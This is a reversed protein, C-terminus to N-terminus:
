RPPWMRELLRRYLREHEDVMRGLDFYDVVRRRGAKGMKRSKEPDRLLEVTKQALVPSDKLPVLYGSEGDVVAEATGPVSTAVVPKELAMAELVALPLGEWLSSLVFVDFTSVVDLIDTRYGLFRVRSEITLGAALKELEHRLSGDGAILFVAEPVARLVEAAAKLFTPYDKQPSLRGVIGVIPINEAIGLETRIRRGGEPHLEAIRIGNRIKASAAIPRLRSM